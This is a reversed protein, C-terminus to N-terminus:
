PPVALKANCMKKIDLHAFCDNHISRAAIDDGEVFNATSYFYFDVGQLLYGFLCPKQLTRKGTGTTLIKFM